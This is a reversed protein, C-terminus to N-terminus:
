EARVILNVSGSVGCRQDAKAICGLIETWFAADDRISFEVRLALVPVGALQTLKEIKVADKETVVIASADTEKARKQLTVIDKETFAHHDDFCRFELLEVGTCNLTREFAGPNGIGCAALVHLGRLQELTWVSDPKGVCRVGASAHTSFFVPKMGSLQRLEAHLDDREADSKLIDSRTVVIIGARTLGTVPERLKGRPLLAGGGYPDSADILVIDLDRKLRWHQFGDDLLAIDCGSAAAKLASAHRDSGLLVPVNLGSLAAKVEEAEDGGQAKYGRMLIAPRRGRRVLERAVYIVAPTKGTGGVSMNGICITTIPASKPNSRARDIAVGVGYLFALPRGAWRLGRPLLTANADARRM